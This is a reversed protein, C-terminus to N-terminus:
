PTPASTPPEDTKATQDMVTVGEPAKFIFREPSIDLDLKVDTYNMTQMPKGNADYMVMKVMMGSDQQYYLHMKSGASQTGEKPVAQIVFAKHDELTEEPLLTLDHTKRMETFIAKPDGTMKPDINAKAAMKRGMMDTLTYSYDGDIIVLIEQEMKMEQEGAKQSMSNKLEMRSFLKEGKRMYEISGTGQGEIIASGMEMHTITQLKATVSKNKDWSTQIRKEVADLEDAVVTLTTGALIAGALLTLAIRKTM